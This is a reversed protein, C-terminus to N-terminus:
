ERTPTTMYKGLLYGAVGGGFGVVAGLKAGKKKFLGFTLEFRGCNWFKKLLLIKKQQNVLNPNKLKKLNTDSKRVFKTYNNRM